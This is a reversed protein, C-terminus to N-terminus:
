FTGLLSEPSAEPDIALANCPNGWDESFAVHDFPCADHGSLLADRLNKWDESFAIPDSEVM